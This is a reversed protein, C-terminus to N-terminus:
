KKAMELVTLCNTVHLYRELYEACHETLKILLLKNALKLLEPANNTNIIVTGTYM